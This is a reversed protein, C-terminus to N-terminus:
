NWELYQYQRLSVQVNRQIVRRDNREPSNHTTRLCASLIEWYIHSSIHSFEAPLALRSRGCVTSSHRKTVQLTWCLEVFTM